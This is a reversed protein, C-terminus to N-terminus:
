DIKHGGSIEKLYDDHNRIYEKENYHTSALVLLVSDSSFDFMDKWVMKPIYLGKMPKNLEIITEEFGNDIRVKSKGSVNILVFESERNAHQGRVVQNNSDYIYFVRKIEFPIADSGEVVVLKGHEDSFYNFEIIKCQELLKM